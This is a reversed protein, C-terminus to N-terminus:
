KNGEQIACTLLFLSTAVVLDPRTRTALFTLIGINKSYRMHESADLTRTQENSVLIASDTPSGVAKADQIM